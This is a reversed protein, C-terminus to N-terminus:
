VALITVKSFVQFHWSLLSALEQKHQEHGASMCERIATQMALFNGYYKSYLCHKKLWRWYREILNLNPSYSPLFALEIGLMRAHARVWDCRQYKANDLFITIPLQSGYFAAVQSLLTCVSHANIYGENTLTHMQQSVANLCGLV